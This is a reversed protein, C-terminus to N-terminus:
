TLDCCGPLHWWGLHQDDTSSHSAQSSSACGLVHSGDDFQKIGTFSDFFLGLGHPCLEQFNINLNTDSHSPIIM